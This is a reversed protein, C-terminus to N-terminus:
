ETVTGPFLNTKREERDRKGGLTMENVRTQSARGGEGEKMQEKSGEERKDM